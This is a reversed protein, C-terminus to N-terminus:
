PERTGVPLQVKIWEAAGRGRQADDAYKVEVMRGKQLDAIRGMINPLTAKSRDVWIMTNKTVEATWIGSFAMIEITRTQENFTDIKGIISVTHSIGPSNGVPIFRETAKQAHATLVHSGLLVVIGILGTLIRAM